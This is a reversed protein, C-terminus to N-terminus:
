TMSNFLLGKSLDTKDMRFSGYKPSQSHISQNDVIPRNEVNKYKYNPVKRQPLAVPSAAGAAMQDTSFSSSTPRGQLGGGVQSTQDFSKGQISLSPGSHSSGSTFVPTALTSEELHSARRAFGPLQKLRNMDIVM